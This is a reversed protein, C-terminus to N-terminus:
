YPDIMQEEGDTISTLDFFECRREAIGLEPNAQVVIVARPSVKIAGSSAQYPRQLRHLDWLPPKPLIGHHILGLATCYHLTLSAVFDGKKYLVLGEDHKTEKRSLEGKTSAVRKKGVAEGSGNFCGFMGGSWASEFDDDDHGDYNRMGNPIAKYFDVNVTGTPPTVTSSNKDSGHADNGADVAMSVKNTFKFAKHMEVGDITSWIGTIFSPGDMDTHFGLPQGDVFYYAQIADPCTKSVKIYYEVNPEVEAYHADTGTICHDVFAQQDDDARVLELSFHERAVMTINHPHRALIIISTTTTDM